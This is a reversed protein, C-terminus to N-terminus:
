TGAAAARDAVVIVREAQVRAAPNDEDRMLRCLMEAKNPGAVLFMAVRAASLVPLTLTLRAHDPRTVGVVRREREDLAADGPFLSATHGDPGLGLIVLDFRPTGEGFISTLEAEYEEAGCSESPMRHVRAMVKSLLALNATNFNSDPHDPPVCREDGFFVETEAWPFPMTTLREYLAKPTSGGALAVTHPHLEVFLDAATGAADDAVILERKM